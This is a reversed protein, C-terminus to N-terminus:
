RRWRGRAFRGRRAPPLARGPSATAGATSPARAGSQGLERPVRRRRGPLDAAGAARRRPPRPAPRHGRDAGTGTRRAPGRGYPPPARLRRGHLGRRPRAPPHIRRGGRLPVVQGLGRPSPTASSLRASRPRGSARLAPGARPRHRAEAAPGRRHRVRAPGRVRHRDDPAGGARRDPATGPVLRAGPPPRHRPGLVGYGTVVAIGVVTTAGPSRPYHPHTPLGPPRPGGHVAPGAVGIDAQVAPPGGAHHRVARDPPPRPGVGGQRVGPTRPGLGLDAGAGGGGAATGAESIGVSVPPRRYTM